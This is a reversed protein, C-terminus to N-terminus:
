PKKKVQEGTLGYRRERKAYNELARRFQARRFDPWFTKTVYLETYASQWLLFNSLRFEGATRILLDPDPMTSTYLHSSVYQDDIDRATLKGEAADGVARRLM